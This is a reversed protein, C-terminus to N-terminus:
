LCDLPASWGRFSFGLDTSIQGTLGQSIELLACPGWNKGRGWGRGWNIGQLEWSTVRIKEKVYAGLWGPENQRALEREEEPSRKSVRKGPERLKRSFRWTSMRATKKGPLTEQKWSVRQAQFVARWMWASTLCRILLCLFRGIWTKYSLERCHTLSVQKRMVDTAQMIYRPPLGHSRALITAQEVTVSLTCRHAFALALWIGGTRPLCTLVSPTVLSPLLICWGWIYWRPANSMKGQTDGM